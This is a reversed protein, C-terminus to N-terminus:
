GFAQLADAENDHMELAPLIRTIELVRLAETSPKIFRVRSGFRQAVQSSAVLEGLGSSDMRTVETLNLVIKKHGEALLKNILDRLTQDGTGAVLRGSLDAITVGESERIEFEM